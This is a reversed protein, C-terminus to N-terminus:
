RMFVTSPMRQIHHSPWFGGSFLNKFGDPSGMLFALHLLRCRCVSSPAVWSILNSSKKAQVSTSKVAATPNTEAM